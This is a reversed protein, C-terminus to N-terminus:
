LKSINVDNYRKEDVIKLKFGSDEMQKVMNKAHNENMTEVTIHVAVLGMDSIFPHQQVINKVSAGTSALTSIFRALGGVRDSIACDFQLMRGSSYLGREIVRGLMSMDINGGCLITCVRKDKLEEDLKGSMIAALGACGGGEVLLKETELLHLIALSISSETTTVVSDVLQQVILFANQGVTSVALGDAITGGVGVPTFTPKGARLACSMSPCKESEVGIVKVKPNLRKVALAIGALLGGGGVPVVIADVDPLQDLIELGCTGAGAIVAPHDYGNIYTLSREVCLREAETKAEAFNKGHSIVEAGLFRCNEVKTIPAGLPMVVTVPVGVRKGWYALAQAHNGASAAAVGLKAENESLQLLANLAGREKYSGTQRLHDCKYWLDTVSTGAVQRGKLMTTPHMFRSLRLKSLQVNVWPDAHKLNKLNEWPIESPTAKISQNHEM